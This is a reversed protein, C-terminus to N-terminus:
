GNRTYDNQEKPKPLYKQSFKQSGNYFQWLEMDTKFAPADAQGDSAKIEIQTEEM